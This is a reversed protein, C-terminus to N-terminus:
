RRASRCKDTESASSETQDPLFGSEWAHFEQVPLPSMATWGIPWQMVWEVWDPSLQGGLHGQSFLRRPLLDDRRRITGDPNKSELSMGPGDKWDRSAPTPFMQPAVHSAGMQTTTTSRTPGNGATEANGSETPIDADELSQNEANSANGAMKEKFQQRTRCGSKVAHTLGWQMTLGNLATGMKHESATPTPWLGSGTGSTLLAPIDQEWCEGDLMLGWRPWIQSFPELDETGTEGLAPLLTQSTRWLSGSPSLRAFSDKSNAGSPVGPERSDEGREQPQSTRAPSAELFSMLVAEGLDDTLPKFTMGSRSVRPPSAAMTRASCWSPLQTPTGNWLASQAGGLSIGELYEEALAQSFLWSM